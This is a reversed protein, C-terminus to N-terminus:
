RPEQVSYQIQLLHLFCASEGIPRKAMIAATVKEPNKANERLGKKKIQHVSRGPFFAKMMSYNEGVEGLV